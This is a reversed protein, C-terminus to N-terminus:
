IMKIKATGKDDKKLIKCKEGWWTWKVEEVM